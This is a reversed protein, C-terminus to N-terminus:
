HLNHRSWADHYRAMVARVTQPYNLAEMQRMGETFFNPAEEPLDRILEDFAQEMLATDHSRTAVIARNLHLLRWPRGPNTKELDRRVVDATHAIVRTMFRALQALADPEKLANATVALANVVPELTHIRGEHRAIWDAVAIALGDLERRAQPQALQVAWTNLDLVLTLGYEGLQTVDDHKVPGREGEEKDLKITISLFQEIAAVLQPPTVQDSKAPKRAGYVALLERAAEKFHSAARSLGGSSFGAPNVDIPIHEM